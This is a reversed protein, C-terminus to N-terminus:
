RPFLSGFGSGVLPGINFVVPIIVLTMDEATSASVDLKYQWIFSATGNRRVSSSIPCGCGAVGPWTSLEVASPMALSVTLAFLVLAISM